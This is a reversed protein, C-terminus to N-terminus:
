RVFFLDYEVQRSFKISPVQKGRWRCFSLYENYINRDGRETKQLLRSKPRKSTGLIVYPGVNYALVSLLLADKGYNRFLYLSRMLDLLLLDGQAKTM